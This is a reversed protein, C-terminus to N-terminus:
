RAPFLNPVPCLQSEITSSANGVEPIRSNWTLMPVSPSHGRHAPSLTRSSVCLQSLAGAGGQAASSDM